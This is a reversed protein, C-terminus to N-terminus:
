DEIEDVGKNVWVVFQPFLRDKGEEVLASADTAVVWASIEIIEDPTWPPHRANESASPRM